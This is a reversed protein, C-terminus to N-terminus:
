SAVLKGGSEPSPADGVYLDRKDQTCQFEYISLEELTLHGDLACGSKLVNSAYQSWMQDVTEPQTMVQSM